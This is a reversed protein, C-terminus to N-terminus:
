DKLFLMKVATLFSRERKPLCVGAIIPRDLLLRVAGYVYCKYVVIVFFLLFLIVRKIRHIMKNMNLIKNLSKRKQTIVAYFTVSM